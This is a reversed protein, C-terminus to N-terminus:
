PRAADTAQTPHVAWTTRQDREQGRDAAAQLLLAVVQGGQNARNTMFAGAELVVGGPGDGRPLGAGLADVTGVDIHQQEAAVVAVRDKVPGTV